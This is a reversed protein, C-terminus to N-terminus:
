PSEEYIMMMMMTLDLDLQCLARAPSELPGYQDLHSSSNLLSVLTKRTGKYVKISNFMLLLLVSFHETDIFRMSKLQLRVPPQCLHFIISILVCRWYGSYQKKGLLGSVWVHVFVCACVCQSFVSQATLNSMKYHYQDMSDCFHRESTM